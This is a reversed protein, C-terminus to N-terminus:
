SLQTQWFDYLVSCIKQLFMKWKNLSINKGYNLLGMRQLEEQDESKIKRACAVKQSEHIGLGNASGAPQFDLDRPRESMCGHEADEYHFRIIFWIILNM